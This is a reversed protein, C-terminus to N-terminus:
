ECQNEKSKQGHILSRRMLDLYSDAVLYAPKIELDNMWQKVILEIVDPDDSEAMVAEMEVFTGLGAVTDVHFRINGSLYLVRNKVVRAAVGFALKLLNHMADFDSVPSIMYHSHKPGLIDNRAYYILESRTSNERRLKLRGRPIDFYTDEQLLQTPECETLKALRTTMAKLGNIRAKIEINTHMYQTFTKLTNNTM